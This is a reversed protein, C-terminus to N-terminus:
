FLGMLTLSDRALVASVLTLAAFGLLFFWDAVGTKLEYLSTRAHKSDIGRVTAARSIEDTVVSVRLILPVAFHEIMRLPHRLINGLSLRIGRLKMAALVASAEAALTPFFRLVVSLAVIVLRPIHLRQLAYALEGVRVTSVLTTAIIAVAYIKRLMMLMAGVSVFFPDASLSCLTATVWVAAYGVLWKAAGAWRGSYALTAAALVVGAIDLAAPTPTTAMLNIMVLIVIQVRPDVSRRKALSREIQREIDQARLRSGTKRWSRIAVSM